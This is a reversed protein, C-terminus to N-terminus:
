EDDPGEFSIKCRECEWLNMIVSEEFVMDTEGCRPCKPAKDIDNDM